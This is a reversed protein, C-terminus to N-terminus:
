RVLRTRVQIRHIRVTDRARVFIRFTGFHGTWRAVVVLSFARDNRRAATCRETAPDAVVVRRDQWGEEDRLLCLVLLLLGTAALPIGPGRRQGPAERRHRWLCRFLRMVWDVPERNLFNYTLFTEGFLTGFRLHRTPQKSSQKKTGM